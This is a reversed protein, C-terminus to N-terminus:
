KQGASGAAPAERRYWIERMTTEKKDAAERHRDASHPWLWDALSWVGRVFFCYEDDRRPMQDGCCFGGRNTNRGIKETGAAPLLLRIEFIANTNRGEGVQSTPFASSWILVGGGGGFLADGFQYDAQNPGSPETLPASEGTM